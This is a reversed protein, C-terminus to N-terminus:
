HAALRKFRKKIKLKESCALLVGVGMAARFLRCRNCGPRRQWFVMARIGRLLQHPLYKTRSAWGLRPAARFDRSIIFVASEAHHVRALNAQCRESLCGLDYTYQSEQAWIVACDEGLAMCLVHMQAPSCEILTRSTPKSSQITATWPELAPRRHRIAVQSRCGGLLQLGTRDLPWVYDFGSRFSGGYRPAKM